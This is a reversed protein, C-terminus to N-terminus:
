RGPPPAAEDWRRYFIDLATRVVASLPAAILMGAMGAVAAGAAVVLVVVAPHLRLFRGELLPGIVMSEVQQAVLMVILVGFVTGWGELLALFLAPVAALLPGLVPILNLVGGLTGLQEARDLGLLHFAVGYSVGVFLSAVLRARLYRALLVSIKRGLRIWLARHAPPIWGALGEALGPGGLLLYFGAVLGLLVSFLSSVLSGLAHAMRNMAELAVSDLQEMISQTAYRLRPDAEDGRMHHETLWADLADLYAPLDGAFSVLETYVRPLLRIFALVVLGIYAAYVCLVALARPLRLRTLGQVLPALLYYSAGGVLLTFVFPWLYHVAAWIGVFAATLGLWVTRGRPATVPAAREAERPGSSPPTPSSDRTSDTM